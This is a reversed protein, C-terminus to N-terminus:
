KSGGKRSVLHRLLVDYGTKLGVRLASVKSVSGEIQDSISKINYATDSLSTSFIRADKTIVNLNDTLEKVSRLTEELEKTTTKLTEDTTKFFNGADSATKRIEFVASIFFGVAVALTAAIVLLIIDTM